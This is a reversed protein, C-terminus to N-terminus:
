QLLQVIKLAFRIAFAVLGIGVFRVLLLTTRSARRENGALTAVNDRVFKIFGRPALLMFLGVGIWSLFMAAYLFGIVLLRSIM